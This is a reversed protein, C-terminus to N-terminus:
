IKLSKDDWILVPNSTSILGIESLSYALHSLKDGFENFITYRNNLQTYTLYLKDRVGTIVHVHEEFVEISHVMSTEKNIGTLREAM